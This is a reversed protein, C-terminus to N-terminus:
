GSKKVLLISAPLKRLVADNTRGFLFHELRGEEHALMVILDIKEEEVVKQIEEVPMGDKVQVTVPLGKDKEIKVMRNLGKRADSVMKEYEDHLSPLPLNWGDLNFPDHIVHLLYLHAGYQHALSIGTEVAERCHKTSRSVVLINKFPKM